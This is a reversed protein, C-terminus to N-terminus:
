YTIIARGGSSSGGGIMWCRVMGVGGGCFGRYIVKSSAADSQPRMSIFL